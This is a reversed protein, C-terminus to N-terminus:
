MSAQGNSEGKKIHILEIRSSRPLTYYQELAESKTWCHIPTVFMTHGDRDSVEYETDDYAYMTEIIEWVIWGYPFIQTMYRWMRRKTSNM